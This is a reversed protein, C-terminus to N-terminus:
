AGSPTLEIDTGSVRSRVDDTRAKSRYSSRHLRSCECEAARKKLPSDRKQNCRNVSANTYEQSKANKQSRDDREPFALLIIDSDKPLPELFPALARESEEM